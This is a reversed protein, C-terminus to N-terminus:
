SNNTAAATASILPSSSSADNADSSDTAASPTPFAISTPTPLMLTTSTEGARMPDISRVHFLMTGNNRPQYGLTPTVTLNGCADRSCNSCPLPNEVDVEVWDRPRTSCVRHPSIAAVAQVLEPFSDWACQNWVAAKSRPSLAGVCTRIRAFLRLTSLFLAVAACSAATACHSCCWPMKSAAFQPKPRTGSPRPREGGGLRSKAILWM